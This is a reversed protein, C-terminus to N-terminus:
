RTNAGPEVLAWIAPQKNTRGTGQRLKLPGSSPSTPWHWHCRRLWNTRRIPSASPSTRCGPAPNSIRGLRPPRRRPLLLSGLRPLLLGGLPSPLGTAREGARRCVFSTPPLATTPTTWPRLAVPRALPSRGNGVNAPATTENAVEGQTGVVQVRHLGSRVWTRHAPGGGRLLWARARALGAIDGVQGAGDRGGTDARRCWRASRQQGGVTRELAARGAPAALRSGSAYWRQLCYCSIGDYLM